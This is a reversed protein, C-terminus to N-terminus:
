HDEKRKRPKTIRVSVGGNSLVAGAVLVGQKLDDLLEAKKIHRETRVEVYEGPIAKDDTILVSQPGNVLSTTGFPSGAFSSRELALMIDALEVRMAMARQAYRQERAKMDAALQAAERERLEAFVIAAVMRRLIEDPPCINPDIDFALALVQEDTALQEDVGLASRVRQMASVCREITSPGPARGELPM